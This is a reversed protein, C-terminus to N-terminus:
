NSSCKFALPFVIPINNELVSTYRNINFHKHFNNQEPLVKNKSIVTQIANGIKKGYMYVPHGLIEQM